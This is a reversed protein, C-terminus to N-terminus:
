LDYFSSVGPIEAAFDLKSLNKPATLMRLLAAVCSHITSDLFLDSAPYTSLSVVSVFCLSLM